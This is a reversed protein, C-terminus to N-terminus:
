ADDSRRRRRPKGRRLMTRSTMRAALSWKTGRRRLSQRPSPRARLTRRTGSRTQRRRSASSRQTLTTERRASRACARSRRRPPAAAHVSPARPPCRPRPRAAAARVCRGVRGSRPPPPQQACKRRRPLRPPPPAAASARQWRAARFSRRWRRTRRTKTRRRALPPARRASGAAARCRSCRRACAAPISRTGAGATACSCSSPAPAAAAPPRALALRPTAGRSRVARPPSRAGLARLVRQQTRARVTARAHMRARARTAPRAAQRSVPVCRCTACRASAAAESESRLGDRLAQVSQALQACTCQAECAARWAEADFEAECYASLVARQLALMCSRAAPADAAADLAELWAQRDHEASTWHSEILEALGRVRRKLEVLAWASAHARASLVEAEEAEEEDGDDYAVRWRAEAPRGERAGHGAAGAAKSPPPSFPGSARAPPQVTGCAWASEAAVFTVVRVGDLKAPPLQLASPDDSAAAEAARVAADAAVAYLEVSASELEAVPALELLAHSLKGLSLRHPEPGRPNAVRQALKRGEETARALVGGGGGSRACALLTQAHSPNADPAARPTFAYLSASGDPTLGLRRWRLERPRESPPLEEAEGDAAVACGDADARAGAGEAAGRKASASRLERHRHAEWAGAAKDAAIGGNLAAIISGAGSAPAGEHKPGAGKKGKAAKARAKLTAHLADRAPKTSLLADGLECLARARLAPPVSALEAGRLRECAGQVGAGAAFGLKGWAGEPAAALLALECLVHPANLADVSDPHPLTPDNFCEHEALLVRLMASLVSRLLLSERALLEGVLVAPDLTTLGPVRLLAGFDCLLNHVFLQRGLAPARPRVWAPRAAVLTLRRPTETRERARVARVTDEAAVPLRTVAGPDVVPTAVSDVRRAPAPKCLAHVPKAPMAQEPTKDMETMDIVQALAPTPPAREGKPEHAAGVPDPSVSVRTFFSSIKM